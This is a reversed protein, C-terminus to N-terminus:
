ELAGAVGANMAGSVKIHKLWYVKRRFGFQDLRSRNWSLTARWSYMNTHNRSFATYLFSVNDDGLRTQLVGAAGISLMARAGCKRPRWAVAEPSELSKM